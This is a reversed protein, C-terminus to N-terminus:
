RILELNFNAAVKVGVHHQIMTVAEPESLFCTLESHDFDRVLLYEYGILLDFM